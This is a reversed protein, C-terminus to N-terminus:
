ALFGCAFTCALSSSGFELFSDVRRLLDREVASPSDMSSDPRTDAGAM